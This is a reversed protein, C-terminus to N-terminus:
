KSVGVYGSEEIIRQGEESLIWDILVPINENKNSKAYVAYIESILPYSGNRINEASPYAGNVSLMKVNQRGTMDTVYYRFSFGVASGIITFPRKQMKEGDMFALMATQSGSGKNRQLPDIPLNKGGLEKWNKYKGTYIGKIQDVTLDGVPNDGNVIFVFAERGIPVFELEVGNEAAYALQEGSPGACIIIDAGGDVVAKYAGRTNTYQMASDPAFGDGEFKVSERPYVANVFASYFPVCAAAGDIVPIDGTLTLASDVKVIRSDETFPLYETLEVSKARMEDSLPNEYRKTVFCYICLDLSAFLLALAILSAIQKFLKM